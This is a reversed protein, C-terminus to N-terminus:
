RGLQVDSNPTFRVKRNFRGELSVSPITLSAWTVDNIDGYEVESTFITSRNPRDGARTAMSRPNM